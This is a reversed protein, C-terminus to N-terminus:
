LYLVGNEVRASIGGGGGDTSGGLSDRLSEVDVVVNGDEVKLGDGISSDLLANGDKAPFRYTYSYSGNTTLLELPLLDSDGNVTRVIFGKSSGKHLVKLEGADINSAILTKDNILAGNLKVVKNFTKISNIEEDRDSHLTNADEKLIYYAFSLAPAYHSQTSPTLGLDGEGSGTLAGAIGITKAGTLAFRNAASDQESHFVIAVVDKDTLAINNKRVM